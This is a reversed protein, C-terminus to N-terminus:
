AVEKRIESLYREICDGVLANMSIDKSAALIKLEQRVEKSINIHIKVM